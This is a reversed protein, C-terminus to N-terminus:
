VIDELTSRLKKSCFQNYELTDDSSKNVEVVLFAPTVTFIDAAIGLKGKRGNEQGQLRVDSDNKKVKFNVIKAVEELRWIVSTAPPAQHLQQETARPTTSLRHHSTTQISRNLAFLDPVRSQISKPCFAWFDTKSAQERSSSAISDVVKRRRAKPLGSQDQHLLLRGSLPLSSHTSFESYTETLLVRIQEMEGQLRWSVATMNLGDLLARCEAKINSGLGYFAVAAGGSLGNCGKSAGDVNLKMVNMPPPEWKNWQIKTSISFSSGVRLDHLLEKGRLDDM